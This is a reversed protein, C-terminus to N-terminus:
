RSLSDTTGHCQRHCASCLTILNREDDEGGHSRFQRHHVELHTKAGCQQCRWGDRALVQRREAANKVGGPESRRTM